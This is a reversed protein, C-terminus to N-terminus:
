VSLLAHIVISTKSMKYFEFMMLNELSFINLNLLNFMICPIYSVPFIINWQFIICLDISTAHFTPGYLSM